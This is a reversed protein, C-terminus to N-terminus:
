IVARSTERCIWLYIDIFTVTQCNSLLSRHPQTPQENQLQFGASSIERKMGRQTKEQRRDGTKRM